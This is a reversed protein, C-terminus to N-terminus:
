RMAGPLLSLLYRTEDRLDTGGSPVFSAVEASFADLYLERLEFLRQRANVDSIELRAAASKLSLTEEIDLLYDKLVEFRASWGKREWAARAGALALEHVELALSGDLESSPESGTAPLDGDEPFAETKNEDRKEAHARREENVLHSKLCRVLWFRFRKDSQRRMTVRGKGIQVALFGQALDQAKDETYGRRVFWRHIPRQYKECLYRLAASDDGSDLVDWMTKTPPWPSGEPTSPVPTPQTM